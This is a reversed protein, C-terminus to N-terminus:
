TDRSGMGAERGFHKDDMGAMGTGMVAAGGGSAPSRVSVNGGKSTRGEGGFGALTELESGSLNRGSARAAEEGAEEAVELPTGAGDAGGVVDAVRVFSDGSSAPSLYEGGGEGPDGAEGAIDPALESEMARRLADTMSDLDQHSSM